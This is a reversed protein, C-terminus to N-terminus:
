FIFFADFKMTPALLLLLNFDEITVLLFNVFIIYLRRSKQLFEYNEFV